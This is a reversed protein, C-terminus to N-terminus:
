FPSFDGPDTQIATSKMRRPVVKKLKGRKKMPTAKKSKVQKVPLQVPLFSKEKKITPPRSKRFLPKSNEYIIRSILDGQWNKFLNSCPNSQSSSNSIRKNM